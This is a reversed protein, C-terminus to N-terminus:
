APGPNQYAIELVSIHDSSLVKCHLIVAANKGGTEEKTECLRSNKGSTHIMSGFGRRDVM